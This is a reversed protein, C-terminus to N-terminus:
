LGRSSACVSLDTWLWASALALGQGAAKAERGVEERREGMMWFRWAKVGVAAHGQAM